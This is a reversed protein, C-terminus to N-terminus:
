NEFDSEPSLTTIENDSGKLDFHTHLANLEGAELKKWKIGYTQTEKKIEHM